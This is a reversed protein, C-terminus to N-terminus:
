CRPWRIAQCAQPWSPHPPKITGMRCSRFHRPASCTSPKSHAQRQCKGTQPGDHGIDQRHHGALILM